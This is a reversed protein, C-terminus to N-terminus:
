QSSFLWLFKFYIHICTCTSFVIFKDQFHLVLFNNIIIKLSKIALEIVINKLFSVVFGLKKKLLNRRIEKAVFRFPKFVVELHIHLCKFDGFIKKMIQRVSSSQFTIISHASICVFRILYLYWHLDITINRQFCVFDINHVLM